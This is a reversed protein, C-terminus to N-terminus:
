YNGEVGFLERELVRERVEMSSCNELKFFSFEGDLNLNEEMSLKCPIHSEDKPVQKEWLTGLEERIEEERKEFNTGM